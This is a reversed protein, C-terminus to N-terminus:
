DCSIRVSLEKAGSKITSCASGVIELHRPDKLAYGDTASLPITQGDLTVQATGLESAAVDRQLRVECFPIKALIDAFQTTLGVISSGALYPQEADADVGWVLNIPKGKGANALQQLNSGAIDNSIGLVYFDIGAAYANQAAAVAVTQGEGDHSMPNACTNPNGDTVLVISQQSAARRAKIETVVQNISEGTPTNGDPALGQYLARLPAYNNTAAPVENLIPCVGGAFGNHATFFSIGFRVSGQYTKVVGNTPDFLAAGVLSWRTEPSTQTPYHTGMSRSQDVLLTVAPRLADLSETVAECAPPAGADAPTGADLTGAGAAPSGATGTGAGGAATGGAPQAPDETASKGGAPNEELLALATRAGCSPLLSVAGCVAILKVSRLAVFFRHPHQLM